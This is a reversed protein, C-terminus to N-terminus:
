TAVILGHPGFVNHQQLIKETSGSSISEVVFEKLADTAQKYDVPNEDKLSQPIAIAQKVMTFAGTLIKSGHMTEMKKTLWPRLGAVVHISPDNVFIEWSKDLGPLETKVLTANQINKSLWLEYAAASSVSIRVRTRDVDVISKIHSKPKVLYCAPILAYPPSFSFSAERQPEAAFLAIDWQDQKGAEALLGPNKFPVLELDLELKKAFAKALDPAVGQLTGDKSRTVLLYNSLNIGARLKGTRGLVRAAATLDATKKKPIKWLARIQEMTKTASKTLAM